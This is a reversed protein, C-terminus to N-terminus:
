VIDVNRLGLSNEFQRFELLVNKAMKLRKQISANTNPDLANYIQSDDLGAGEDRSNACCFRVLFM